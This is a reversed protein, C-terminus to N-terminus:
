VISFFLDNVLFHDYIFIVSIIVETHTRQDPSQESFTAKAKVVCCKYM